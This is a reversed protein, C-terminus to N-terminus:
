YGSFYDSHIRRAGLAHLAKRLDHVLGPPGSVYVHRKAVDPVQEAIRAADVRGTGGYTWGAPLPSPATPAFVVVRAGSTELLDAYPLDGETSTAYVLVIDRQGGTRSAHALQSAFPTIGIGGAVLLVPVKPDAPLAFDGGVLTGDVRAGPELDLLARKFSSAKTPMTMAFTIPRDEGPASSISFYRRKGRFDQKRHPITLEMYQGPFFRVPNAPQFGLEWTDAGLQKKGQYTMRLGRRQGFFFAVLNAVLLAFAPTLTFPALQLINSPVGFLVAAIVAILIQQWRRPPLTLPESLMFGALFIAPGSVLTFNLTDLPNGGGALGFILRVVVAVAVFVLGMTLHQTRYLVLFAGILVPILLFQSGPWWTQFGLAVGSIAAALSIVFVGFAAPNFIHRGRVAILYKSASALFAASAIGALGIGDVTPPLIMAVLFGTIFASETHPAKGVMKAFAWSAGFSVAMSVAVSVVLELPGSRFLGFFSLVLAVATIVALSILVLMYMTVAGTVRDLLRRM